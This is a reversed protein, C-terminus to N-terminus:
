LCPQQAPCHWAKYLDLYTLDTVRAKDVETLGDSFAVPNRLCSKGKTSGHQSDGSMDKNEMHRLTNELLIQEMIKSLLSTLSIPRYNEVYGAKGKIFIPTGGKGTLPFKVASSHIEFIICLPEAVKDLLERLVQLHIEDDEANKM